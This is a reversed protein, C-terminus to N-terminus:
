KIVTLLIYYPEIEAITVPEEKAHQCASYRFVSGEDVFHGREYVFRSAGM